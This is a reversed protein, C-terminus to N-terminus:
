VQTKMTRVIKFLDQIKSTTKFLGQIRSRDKFLVQNREQTKFLGQFECGQGRLVGKGTFNSKKQWPFNPKDETYSGTCSVSITLVNKPM